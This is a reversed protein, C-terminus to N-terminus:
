LNEDLYLCKLMQPFKLSFHLVYYHCLFGSILPYMVSFMLELIFAVGGEGQPACIYWRNMFKKRGMGSSKGEGFFNM